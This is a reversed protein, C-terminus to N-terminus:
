KRSSDLQLSLTLHTGRCRLVSLSVFHTCGHLVDVRLYQQPTTPDQVIRHCYAAYTQAQGEATMCGLDQWTLDSRFYAYIADLVDRITVPGDYRGDLTLPGWYQLWRAIRSDDMEITIKRACSYTASAHYDPKGTRYKARSPPGIVDWQLRTGRLHPHIRLDDDARLDPQVVELQPLPQLQNRYPNRSRLARNPLIRATDM